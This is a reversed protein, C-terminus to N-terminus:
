ESIKLIKYDENYISIWEDDELDEIMEYYECTAEFLSDTETLIQDHEDSSYHVSFTSQETM